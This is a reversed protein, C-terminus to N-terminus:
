DRKKRKKYLDPRIKKTKEISKTLRWDEIAKHNGSLLVEPVAYGAFEPPRTYHPYELLDGVFSEEAISDANGLFGPLHRCVCDSIALAPLEGGTLVYDGISYEFNVFHDIVRQDIGEYHGCIFIMGKEDALHKGDNQTFTKGGPSPYIVPYSAFNEISKMASVIPEVMMVMGAGGGYPYDDVRHHKNKAFRRIDIVEITIIGTEVARKMMSEAFYAKIMEPFLTLFFLNM